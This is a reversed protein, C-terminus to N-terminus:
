RPPLWERHSSLARMLKAQRFLSWRDQQCPHSHSHWSSMLYVGAELLLYVQMLQANTSWPSREPIGSTAV